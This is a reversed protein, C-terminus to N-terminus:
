VGGSTLKAIAFRIANAIKGIRCYKQARAFDQPMFRGILLHGIDKHKSSIADLMRGVLKDTAVTVYIGYGSLFTLARSILGSSASLSGPNENMAFHLSDRALQSALSSGNLLYLVESAVSAVACEVISALQLGGINRPATLSVRELSSRAGLRSLM